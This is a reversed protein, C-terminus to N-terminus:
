VKYHGLGPLSPYLYKDIYIYAHRHRDTQRHRHRDTKRDLPANWDHIQTVTTIM